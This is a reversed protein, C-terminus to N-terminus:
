DRKDSEFREITQVFEDLNQGVYKMFVPAVVRIFLDWDAPNTKSMEKLLENVEALTAEDLLSLKAVDVATLRSPSLGHTITKFSQVRDPTQYRDFDEISATSEAMEETNEESSDDNRNPLVGIEIGHRAAYAEVAKKLPEAGPDVGKSDQLAESWFGVWHEEPLKRITKIAHIEEPFALGPCEQCIRIVVEGRHLWHYLTGKSIGLRKGFAEFTGAVKYVKSRHVASVILCDLAGEISRGKFYCELSSILHPLEEVRSLDAEGCSKVRAALDALRRQTWEERDAPSEPLSQLLTLLEGVNHSDQSM